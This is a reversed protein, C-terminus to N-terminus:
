SVPDFAYTSNGESVGAAEKIKGLRRQRSIERVDHSVSHM